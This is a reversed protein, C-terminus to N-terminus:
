GRRADRALRAVWVLGAADLGLGCGLCGWGLPGGLLVAVPRAGISSGLLIGVLPLFGLLRATARPGALVVAVERQQRQQARLGEALGDLVSLLPAGTTEAVQVSAALPRLVTGSRRAASMALAAGASQGLAVAGLVPDLAARVRGPLADDAATRLARGTDAGVELEAAVGEVVAVLDVLDARETDSRGRLRVAARRLRGVVRATHSPERPRVRTLRGRGRRGVLVAGVLLSTVVAPSV